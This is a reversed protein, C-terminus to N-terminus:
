EEQPARHPDRPFLHSRSARQEAIEKLRQMHAKIVREYRPKIYLRSIFWGLLPFQYDFEGHYAMETVQGQETLLFEEYSYDLPGAIHRFTVREPPYLNVEEVTNVTRKGAKTRFHVICTNGEERLVRASEGPAGPIRGRCTASLMQFVMERPAQIALSQSKLKVTM